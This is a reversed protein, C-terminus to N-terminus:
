GGHKSRFIWALSGSLLLIISCAFAWMKKYVGKIRNHNAAVANGLTVLDTEKINKIKVEHEIVAKKFDGIDVLRTNISGLQNSLHNQDEHYREQDRRYQEIFDDFKSM